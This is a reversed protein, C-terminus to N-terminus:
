MDLLVSHSYMMSVCFKSECMVLWSCCFSYRNWTSSLLWCSYFLRFFQCDNVFKHLSFSAKLCLMKTDGELKWLLLNTNVPQVFTVFNVTVGFQLENAQKGSEGRSVLLCRSWVAQLEVWSSWWQARAAAIRCTGGSQFRGIPLGAVSPETCNLFGKARQVKAERSGPSLGSSSIFPSMSHVCCHELPTHQSLLFFLNPTVTFKTVTTCGSFMLLKLFKQTYVTHIFSFPSVLFTAFKLKWQRELIYLYVAYARVWWMGSIRWVSQRWCRVLRMTTCVSRVWIDKTTLVLNSSHWWLYTLTTKM